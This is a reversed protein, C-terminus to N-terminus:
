QLATLKESMGGISTKSIKLTDEKSKIVLINDELTFISV